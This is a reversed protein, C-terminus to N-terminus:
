PRGLIFEVVDEKEGMGLKKRINTKRQYITPISQQTVVSIEKTSFDACLLCCLQQEKDILMEGFRRMMKTYFSDYVRDIVPYLDEWVLLSEVPLEHNTIGSIRRLLEQNQSTPQKAVLRIIGLQKLLIKRFFQGDEVESAVEDNETTQIGITDTESNKTVEELLRTLTEVREEAEILRNRRNRIYFFAGGGVLVLLLLSFLLTLQAEQREVTLILNAQSLSEKSEDKRRITSHVAFLANAVSDNYRMVDLVDFTRHRTYDIMAQYVSAINEETLFKASGAARKRERDLYYQASDLLGDKLFVEVKVLDGMSLQASDKVYQEMRRISAIAGAYEKILYAQLQAYNRLYHVIKTTDGAQVALEVSRNMYYSASDEKQLGMAIGISFCLEAKEKLAIAERFTEIAKAYDKWVYVYWYAKEGLMDVVEATDQLVKAAVIGSDIVTMSQEYEKLWYLYSAKLHYSLLQKATDNQSIYYNFAPLILSDEAMSNNWRYHVYTKLWGYLLREEGLLQSPEEIKALLSYISDVNVGVQADALRLLRGADAQRCGVFCLMVFILGLFPLQRM